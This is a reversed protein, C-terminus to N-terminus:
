LRARLRVFVMVLVLGLMYAGLVDTPHHVGLWVRSFGVFGIWAVALGTLWWKAHWNYKHAYFVVMGWLCFTVLSHSSVYSFSEPHIGGLQMELPPRPRQVIPKVMCNLLYTFLPILAIFAIDLWKRGKLFYAGLGLIPIALMIVYLTCDPLAPIVLPMGQLATQVAVIFSRDWSTIMPCFSILLTYIIFVALLLVIKKM